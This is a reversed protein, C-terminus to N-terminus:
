GAQIRTSKIDHCKKNKETLFNLIKLNTASKREEYRELAEDVATLQMFGPLNPNAGAEVLTRIVEFSAFKTCERLPSNGIRAEDYADVAAGEALLLHVMPLNDARAAWALPTFAVDDFSNLWKRSGAELLARVVKLNGLQVAYHLLTPDDGLDKRGLQEVAEVDERQVAGLLDHPTHM